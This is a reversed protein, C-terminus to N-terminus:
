FIMCENPSRELNMAMDVLKLPLILMKPMGVKMQPAAM